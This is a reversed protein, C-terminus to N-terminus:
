SHKRGYGKWNIKILREMSRNQAVSLTMLYVPFSCQVVHYLQSHEAWNKGVGRERIASGNIM